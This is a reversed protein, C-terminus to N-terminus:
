GRFSVFYINIYFIVHCKRWFLRSNMVVKKYTIKQLSSVCRLNFGSLNWPRFSWCSPCSRYCQGVFYFDHATGSPKFISELDTKVASDSNTPWFIRNYRKRPIRSKAIKEASNAIQPIDASSILINQNQKKSITFSM